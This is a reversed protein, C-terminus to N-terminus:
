KKTAVRYNQGGTLWFVDHDVNAGMLFGYGVLPVFPKDESLLDMADSITQKYEEGTEGKWAQVLDDARDWGANSAHGGGDSPMVWNILDEAFVGMGPWIAIEFNGKALNDAFLNPDQQEVTATVGVAELQQAIMQAMQVEDASVAKASITVKCASGCASAAVLQKAEDVEAAGNVFASYYPSGEPFISLQPSNKGFYVVQNLQTRDIAASIADRLKADATPVGSRMNMVLYEGGIETSDWFAKLDGSLQTAAQVPIADAVDVQGGQLQSLRAAADPVTVFRLTEIAPEAGWYHPNAKLVVENASHEDVMYMGASVPTKLFEERKAEDALRTAPLIPAGPIGLTLDLRPSPQNLSVEVETDNLAKVDSIASFAYTWVGSEFGRAFNLSAAVDQATLPTGDSFTADARVQFVWKKDGPTWTEAIGPSAETGDDNITTLTGGVLGQIGIQDHEFNKTADLTAVSSGIAVTLEDPVGGSSSEAPDAGGGCGALLAGAAALAALAARTRTKLLLVSM